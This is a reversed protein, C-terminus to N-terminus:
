DSSIDVGNPNVSASDVGGDVGGLGSWGNGEGVSGCGEKALAWIKRVLWQMRRSQGLGRRSVHPRAM